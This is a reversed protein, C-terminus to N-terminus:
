LRSLDKKRLHHVESAVAQRHSCSTPIHPGAGVPANHGGSDTFDSCEMEVLFAGVPPVTELDSARDRLTAGEDSLTNHILQFALRGIFANLDSPVRGAELAEFRYGLFADVVCISFVTAFLRHWWTHTIWERELGISGQRLQDHNDVAAFFRFFQEIMSPRKISKTYQITNLIGNEIVKKHRPRLSPPGESTTGRTSLVTKAKRDNWCIAFLPLPDGDRKSRLLIHDGRTPPPHDPLVGAAWAKLYSLPYEKRATKVMAMLFMGRQALHGACKVSGFASDGIVTRGSNWYQETLRLTVATGEGLEAFPKAGNRASGEMVDLKLLIGTEGDALAKLEAGVGEPKRAIKTVHPCGRSNYTFDSGKWASMIEDVTIFEGPFV